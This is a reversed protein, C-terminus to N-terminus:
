RQKKRDVALAIGGMAGSLDGLGATLVAVSERGDHLLHPAMARQIRRTFPQGLRSGLGGGIVVADVDLVNVASAIVPGAARVADNILENALQDGQDLARAIVGSTLRARNAKKMLTFLVSKEGKDVRERARREMSARGAYAEFCGRRGCSCRRGDPMAVAHGIEGAAGLRGRVIVGERLIAGGVGTGFWVALVSSFPKAAGLRYEGLLATRVDNDVAAVVDFRRELEDRVPFPATWGAINPSKAVTGNEPDVEGPIGVGIAGLRKFSTSTLAQEIGATMADLVARPGGRLPTPVRANSTPVLDRGTIVVEIKTAGVDVGAFM